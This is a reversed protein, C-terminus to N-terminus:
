FIAPDTISLIQGEEDGINRYTHQQDSRFHARDGPDLVVRTGELSLEFRGTLVYIFEEGEHSSPESQGRPQFAALIPSMARDERRSLLLVDIGEAPSYVHRGDGKRVVVSPQPGGDPLVDAIHVGYFRTLRMLRTITIDSKGSELLALFSKSIEAGKAVRALSFGRELRLTRLNNGLETSM